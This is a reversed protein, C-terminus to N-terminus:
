CNLIIRSTINKFLNLTKKNLEKSIITFENIKCTIFSTKLIYMDLLISLSDRPTNPSIIDVYRKPIVSAEEPIFM